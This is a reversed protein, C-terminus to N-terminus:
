RDEEIVTGAEGELAYLAPRMYPEPPVVTGTYHKQGDAGRYAVRHGEEVYLSYDLDSGVRATDGSISRRESERLRGTRVPTGRQMLDLLRSSLRDLMAAKSEDIHSRADPDEAYGGM